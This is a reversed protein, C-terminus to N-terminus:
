DTDQFGNRVNCKISVDEEFEDLVFEKSLMESTSFRERGSCLINWTKQFRKQALCM